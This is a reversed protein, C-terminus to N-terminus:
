LSLRYGLASLGANLGAVSWEPLLIMAAFAGVAIVVGLRKLADGSVGEIARTNVAQELAAFVGGGPVSVNVDRAVGFVAAFVTVVGNVIFTLVPLLIRAWVIEVAAYVVSFFGIFVFPVVTGAFQSAVWVGGVVIVSLLVAALFAAVYFAAAYSSTATVAGAVTGAPTVVQTTLTGADQAAAPAAAVLGLLLNLLGTSQAGWLVAIIVIAWGIPAVVGSRRWAYPADASFLGSYSAVPKGSTTGGTATQHAFLKAM